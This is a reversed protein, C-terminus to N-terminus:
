RLEGKTLAQLRAHEDLLLCRIAAAMHDDAQAALVSEQHPRRRHWWDGCATIVDSEMGPSAVFERVGRRVVHEALHWSSVALAVDDLDSWIQHRLDEPTPM